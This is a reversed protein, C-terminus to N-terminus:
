VIGIYPGGLAFTDSTNGLSSCVSCNAWSFSRRYPRDLGGQGRVNVWQTLMCEARGPPIVGLIQVGIQTGRVVIRPPLSQQPEIGLNAATARGM